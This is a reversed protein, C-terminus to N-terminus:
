SLDRAAIVQAIERRILKRVSRTIREGMEGALEERVIDVVMDRLVEEDIPLEKPFFAALEDDVESPVDAQSLDVGPLSEASVETGDLSLAESTAASVAWEAEDFQAEEEPEWDDAPADSVAAALQAITADAAQKTEGGARKEAGLVLVNPAEPGDVPAAAVDVVPAPDDVAIDQMPEAPEPSVEARLSATGPLNPLPGPDFGGEDTVKPGIDTLVTAPDVPPEPEANIRQSPTLLLRESADDAAAPFPDNLSIPDSREARSVLKRVSSMVADIENPKSPDSM